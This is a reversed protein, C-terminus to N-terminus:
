LRKNVKNRGYALYRKKVNEKYARGIPIGKPIDRFEVNVGVDIVNALNVLYSKHVRVFSYNEFEKEIEGLKKAITVSANTNNDSLYTYVETYSGAAKFFAIDEIRVSITEGQYGKYTVIINEEMEELVITIMKEVNERAPPKPIFGITKQSFARYIIEMHSTVFAIRWIMNEKMIADKLEIGSIGSMEVDLFLLDLKENDKDSCYQLVEEGCSFYKYTHEVMRKEFFKECLDFILRREQRVDDCIGICIM